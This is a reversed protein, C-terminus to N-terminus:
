ESLSIGLLNRDAAKQAKLCVKTASFISANPSGTGERIAQLLDELYGGSRDPPSEVEEAADSEARYLLVQTQNFGCEIMGLDGWFNFRWYQPLSYRFGDPSIYSVDGIVGCGGDMVLMLQAANHFSPHAALGANWSRATLVERFGRGTIWQLIDVAHIAIDNITGGHNGKEFYWGPRSDLLLPHQGSFSVGHVSGITGTRILERVRLFAGSDRLDLAAGVVLSHRDSLAEIEALEELDTCIPKDSLVHKGAELAARILRGRRYFVEGVVLLDFEMHQLMDDFDTHSVSIGQDALRDRTESDEECVAVIEVDERKKMHAHIDFIHM